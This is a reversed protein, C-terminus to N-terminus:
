PKPPTFVAAAVFSDACGYYLFWSGHFFVLGEIFTTGGAYQGTREFPAEPKYFPKDTRDLLHTPDKADFLAQGDSYVNPPLSPDGSGSANKGNYLVVIGADTLVAPPGGEALASDFKGPRRKLVPEGMQWHILDDSSASSVDGEGLYMWYKGNIKVAKLRGESLKCVIAGSKSSGTLNPFVPGYKTWHILDKSTAIALRATKRNWQTYTLVFTGDESQVLRPDECGGTWENTKQNDDAPFFAPTPSTSFHLGDESVALGLRSTHAAIARAGTDDEARYLVFVKGDKVVAAPNFTHLAEWRISAGRMPCDFVSNTNPRIIPQAGDPRVFPGLGWAPVQAAVSGALAVIVSFIGITKKIPKIDWNMANGFKITSIAFRPLAVTVISEGTSGKRVNFKGAARGDSAIRQVKDAEGNFALQKPTADGEASLMRVFM